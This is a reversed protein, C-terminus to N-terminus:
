AYAGYMVRAAENYAFAADVANDFTGLWLRKGRNPERIEVVWKDWTRQKVGRYNCFPNEPGGKGKMCGKKSEMAPIKRARKAQVRSSELRANYDRWKALTEVMSVFM